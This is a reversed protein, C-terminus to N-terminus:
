LAFVGRTLRAGVLCRARICPLQPRERDASVKYDGQSVSEHVYMSQLPLSWVKDDNCM